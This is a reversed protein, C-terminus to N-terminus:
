QEHVLVGIRNLQSPGAHWQRCRESLAADEVVPQKLRSQFGVM